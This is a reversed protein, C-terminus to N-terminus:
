YINQYGVKDKVKLWWSTRSSCPHLSDLSVQPRVIEGQILRYRHSLITWEPSQHRRKACHHKGLPAQWVLLLLFGQGWSNLGQGQGQMNHGQSWTQRWRVELEGHVGHMQEKLVGGAWWPCWADTGEACRGSVMSVMCRNRWRVEMEGRVGHVIYIFM